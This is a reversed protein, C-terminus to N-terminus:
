EMESLHLTGADTGASLASLHTHRGKRGDGLSLYLYVGAPLYHDGAAATTGAPGTRIRAPATAYVGIVRTAADLAATQPAADLPLTHAGGPKLRLAPIAHDNDDRPMLTSM